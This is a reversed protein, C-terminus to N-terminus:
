GGGGEEMGESKERREYVRVCLRACVCVNRGRKGEGVWGAVGRGGDGLRVKFDEASWHNLAWRVYEGMYEREYTSGGEAGRVRGRGGVGGSGGGAGDRGSSM